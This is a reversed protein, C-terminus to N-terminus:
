SSDASSENDSNSSNSGSNDSEQESLSEQMTDDDMQLGNVDMRMGPNIRRTSIVQQITDDAICVMHKGHWTGLLGLDELTFLVDEIRIGTLQALRSLSFVRQEVVDESTHQKRGCSHRLYREAQPLVGLLAQVIARRWYSRYSHFGQSSLPQEPGGTTGEMKTLEYSLEILLQGYSQGRFPPLVLICALNNREVSSKEKSFYGVFTYETADLPSSFSGVATAPQKSLLIYFLFGGIDYYITKQDLFLKSLLCLNQCYLTHAKGDVEFLASTADEYVRRGRPFPDPCVHSDLTERHRMYKLCQQCIFLDRTHTYEDPYPSAYWVAISYKGLIIRQIENAEDVTANPANSQASTPRKSCVQTPTKARENSAEAHATHKGKKAPPKRM